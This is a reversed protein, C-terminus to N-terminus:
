RYPVEFVVEIPDEAEVTDTHGGQVEFARGVANGALDELRPDVLLRYSGAAWPAAPRFSWLSEHAEVHPEGPVAQGDGTVVLLMRRSLARDLPEDFRVRLPERTSPSPPSLVWEGPEPSQRDAEVVEFTKLYAEVLPAGKADLWAADIALEFTEGRRLPPGEERNPVLDRKIRGPDLLLTLRQGAPDWLEQPIELFPLEIKRGESDLLHIHRYSDRASMPASFHLYFKLLNEPLRDASPYVRELRTTPPLDLAGTVLRATIASAPEIRAGTARALRAVDFRAVYTLGADLPFRPLFVVRTSEVRYSGLMAPRSADSGTGDGPDPRVEFISRWATEELPRDALGHTLSADLGLVAFGHARDLRILEIRPPEPSQAAAGGATALAVALCGAITM